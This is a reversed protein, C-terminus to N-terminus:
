KGPGLWKEEIVLAAKEMEPDRGIGHLFRLLKALKTYYDDREENSPFLPPTPFKVESELEEIRKHAESLRYQAVSHERGAFNLVM